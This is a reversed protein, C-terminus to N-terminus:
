PQSPSRLAQTLLYISCLLVGYAGFSISFMGSMQRSMERAAEGGLLGAINGAAQQGISRVESTIAAAALAVFALPAANLWRSWAQKVFPVALPAFLCLVALLSLFGHDNTLMTNPDLGIADWGNVKRQAWANGMEMNPLFFFCLLMLAEAVITMAGFRSKLNGSVSERQQLVGSLARQAHEKAVQGESVASVTAPAGTRDFVVDVAMGARPPVESRWMGELLFTYQTGEVTLLGPGVSTDRLIRGRKRMTTDKTDFEDGTPAVNDYFEEFIAKQRKWFITAQPLEVAPAHRV